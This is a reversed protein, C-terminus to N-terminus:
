MLHRSQELDQKLCQTDIIFLAFDRSEHLGRPPPFLMMFNRATILLTFLLLLIFLISLLLSISEILLDPLDRQFSSMQHPGQIIYFLAHLILFPMGSLPFLWHFAYLHFRPTNPFLSFSMAVDCVNWIHGTRGWGGGTPSCTM